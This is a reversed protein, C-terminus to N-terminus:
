SKRRIFKKEEKENFIIIDAGMSGSCNYYDSNQKISFKVPLSVESKADIFYKVPINSTDCITIANESPFKLSEYPYKNPIVKLYFEKTDNSYNKLNIQGEYLVDANKNDSTFRIQSSDRIFEISSLGDMHSKIFSYTSEYVPQYIFSSVIFFCIVFKGFKEHVDRKFRVVGAIGFVLLFLAVIGTYHLGSTGNSWVEFGMKTLIFDGLVFDHTNNNTFLITVLIIMVFSAIGLKKKKEM